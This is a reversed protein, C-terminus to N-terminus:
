SIRQDIGVSQFRGQELGLDPVAPRQFPDAPLEAQGAAGEVAQGAGARDLAQEGTAKNGASRADEVRVGVVQPPTPCLTDGVSPSPSLRATGTNRTSNSLAAWVRRRASPPFRATYVLTVHQDGRAIGSIMCILHQRLLTRM